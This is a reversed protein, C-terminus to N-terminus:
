IGKYCCEKADDLNNFEGYIVGDQSCQWKEWFPNYKISWDNPLGQIATLQSEARWNPIFDDVAKIYYENVKGTKVQLIAGRQNTFSGNDFTAIQGIKFSQNQM